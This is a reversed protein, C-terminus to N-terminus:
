KRNSSYLYFIRTSIDIVDNYIGNTQISSLHVVEGLINILKISYEDPFVGIMDLNLFVEKPYISVKESFVNEEISSVSAFNMRIMPFPSLIGVELTQTGTLCGNKQIYSTTPYTYQSMGIVSTWQTLYNTIYTGPLLTVPDDFLVTVWSGIDSNTLTYDDSQILYIKDNSADIEYM